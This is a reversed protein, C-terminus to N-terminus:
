RGRRGSARQRSRPDPIERRCARFILGNSPARIDHWLTVRCTRCFLWSNISAINIFRHTGPGVVPPWPDPPEVPQPSAQPRLPAREPLWGHLRLHRGVALHGHRQAGHSGSKSRRGIRKARVPPPAAVPRRPPWSRALTPSEGRQGTKGTRAGVPPRFDFGRISPRPRNRRSEPVDGGDRAEGRHGAPNAAAVM